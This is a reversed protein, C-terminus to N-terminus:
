RKKKPIVLALVAIIVIDVAAAILIIKLKKSMKGDTHETKETEADTGTETDTQAETETNEPETQKDTETIEPVCGKEEAEIAGDGFYIKLDDVYATENRTAIALQSGNYHLRTNETELLLEGAKNYIKANKYYDVNTGDSEYSVKEESLEAYAILNDNAYVNIRKADDTIKVNIYEGVTVNEPYPVTCTDSAVTLSDSAYKKVCLAIGNERFSVSLGSGGVGSGGKGGNEAYWDWEFYNFVQMVDYNRPNTKQLAGPAEGRVFINAMSTAKPIKIRLSFVYEAPIYDMTRLDSYGSLKMVNGGEGKTVDCASDPTANLWEFYGYLADLTLPDDGPYASDFNEEILTLAAAPLATMCVSLFICIITTIIKKM